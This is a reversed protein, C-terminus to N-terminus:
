PRSSKFDDPLAVHTAYRPSQADRPPLGMRRAAGRLTSENIRLQEAITNVVDGALWRRRIETELKKVAESKPRGARSKETM